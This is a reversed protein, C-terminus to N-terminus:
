RKESQNLYTAAIENLKTDVARVLRPPLPVSGLETQRGTDGTLSYRIFDLLTIGKRADTPTALLLWTFGSM